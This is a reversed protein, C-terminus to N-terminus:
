DEESAMLLYAEMFPELAGDLVGQTDSSEHNTRHDKVM